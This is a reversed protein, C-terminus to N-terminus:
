WTVHVPLRAVTASALEDDRRETDSLDDPSAACAVAALTMTVLSVTRTNSYTM